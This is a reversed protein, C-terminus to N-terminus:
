LREDLCLLASVSCWIDCSRSMFRMLRTMTGNRVLCSFSIGSGALALEMFRGMM